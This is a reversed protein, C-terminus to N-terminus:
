EQRDSSRSRGPREGTIKKYITSFYSVNVFGVREAVEAVKMPTTNLLQRAHQIRINNLYDSFFAGTEQSFQRGLYASNISLKAALTKLSLNCDNYHRHIYQVAYQVRQSYSGTAIHQIQESLQLLMQAMLRQLAPLSSTSRLNDYVEAKMRALEAEPVYCKRAAQMACTVLEILHFKILSLNAIRNEPLTRCFFDQVLTELESPQGQALLQTLHEPDFVATVAQCMSAIEAPKLELNGWMQRYDLIRLAAQYSEPLEKFSKATSGLATVCDVGLAAKIQAACRELMHMLAQGDQQANPNKIILAINDSMDAVPYATLYRNVQERCIELSQFMIWRLTVDHNDFLPRIIGVAMHNCRLTIDLLQCKERLERVEIQNTLLRNLTNNMLAKMSEKFQQKKAAEDDLAAVTEQITTKLETPDVPKLLYNQAGLQMAKRVYDFQDFGSLMIFKPPASLKRAQELLELGDSYPMRIDAIAIEPHLRELLELATKGNGAEGVIEIGYEDWPILAALGKRIQPEDDILVIRYM